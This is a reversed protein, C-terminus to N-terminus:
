PAFASRLTPPLAGPSGAASRRPAAAFPTAPATSPPAELSAAARAAALLRGRDARVARLELRLACVQERLAVVEAHVPSPPDECLARLRLPSAGPPAARAAGGAAFGGSPSVRAAPGCAGASAPSVVAAVPLPSLRRTEQAAVLRGALSPSIEPLPEPATVARSLRRPPPPSAPDSVPAATYIFGPLFLSRGSRRSRSRV